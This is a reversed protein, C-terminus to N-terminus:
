APLSTSLTFHQRKILLCFTISQEKQCQSCQIKTPSSILFFFRNLYAVQIQISLLRLLKWSQICESHLLLEWIKVYHQFCKAIPVHQNCFSFESPIQPLNQHLMPGTFVWVITLLVKDTKTLLDGRSIEVPRSSIHLGLSCLIWPAQELSLRVWRAM